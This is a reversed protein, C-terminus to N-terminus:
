LIWTLFLDIVSKYNKLTFIIVHPPPAHSPPLPPQPPSPPRASRRGWPQSRRARESKMKRTSAFTWLWRLQWTERQKRKNKQGRHTWFDIELGIKPVNEIGNQILKLRTNWQIWEFQEPLDVNPSKQYFFFLRFNLIQLNLNFFWGTIQQSCSPIRYIGFDDQQGSFRCSPDDQTQQGRQM